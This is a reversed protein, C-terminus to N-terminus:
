RIVGDLGAMRRLTGIQGAHYGEHWALAIVASGVTDGLVDSPTALPKEFLADDAEELFRLIPKRTSLYLDLLQQLPM